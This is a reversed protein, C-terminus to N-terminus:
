KRFSVHGGQGDVPVLEIWVHGAPVKLPGAATSLKLLSALKMKQWTGSVVQGRHFLMLDGKGSFITEPVPNGAPDLYGARGERVRLVLVNSAPFQDGAPANSNTNHYTGNTFSWQTTHGGSFQAALTTAKVGKPFDSDSGWSLYNPASAPKTKAAAAIENLHVFLNYPASRTTSRYFGKAGGEQFFPIHAGRILGITRGAAGSTVVSAHFYKSMM